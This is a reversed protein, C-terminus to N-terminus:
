QTESSLNENADHYVKQQKQVQEQLKTLLPNALKWPLEQVGLALQNVEEESLTFTFDM